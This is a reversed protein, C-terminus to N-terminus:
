KKRSRSAIEWKQQNYEAIRHLLDNEQGALYKVITMTGVTHLNMREALKYQRVGSQRTEFLITPRGAVVPFYRHVLRAPAHDEVLSSEVNMGNVSLMRVVLGQMHESQDVVSSPAGSSAGVTEIFDGGNNSPSLEHEDLIVDPNIRDIAQRVARTEPEKLALWDRNLDAGHANKRKYVDAGDPNLMPVIHLSVHSLLALTDPDNDTALKEILNLMAETSAPEDGHQRCVIFLRKEPTECGCVTVLPISKGKVSRGIVDITVRSNSSLASLRKIMRAHSTLSAKEAYTASVLLILISVVTSLIIRYNRM